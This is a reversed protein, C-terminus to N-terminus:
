HGSRAFPLPHPVARLDWGGRNVFIPSASMAGVRVLAMSIPWGITPSWTASTVVGVDRGGARVRDGRAPPTDGDIRLGALKRNIHGIYTGRAVVEQGVYCGKTFSIAGAPAVELALTESTMEAGMRPIGAEIRLVEWAERGIPAVGRHELQEWIRALSSGISWIAYGVEGAGRVCVVQVERERDPRAPRFADLALGRFQDGMIAAVFDGAAPGHVEIHGCTGLDEFAVDDSVVYKELHHLIPDRQGADLDLVFSGPFAYVRLDGLVRSKENLLLAYASTGPVLTKMDATVLGDLFTVRDEGTVRVKARDSLDILGARGHVSRVESGVSGYGTPVEWGADSRFVAGSAEHYSGLRLRHAM